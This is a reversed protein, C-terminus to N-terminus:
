RGTQAQQVPQLINQVALTSLCVCQLEKLWNNTNNSCPQKNILGQKTEQQPATGRSTCPTSDTNTCFSLNISVITSERKKIHPEVKIYTLKIYLKPANIKWLTVRVYTFLKAEENPRTMWKEKGNMKGKTESNGKKESKRGEGGREVPLEPMRKKEAFKSCDWDWGFTWECVGLIYSRVSLGWVDCPGCLM